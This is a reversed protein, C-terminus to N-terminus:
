GRSSLVVDVEFEENNRRYKVRVTQEADYQLLVEPLSQTTGVPQDEVSLIIDGARLGANWAPSGFRVAAIGFRSSGQLLVGHDFMSLDVGAADPLVFRVGLYPHSVKSDTVVDKFTSTFHHAPIVISQDVFKDNSSVIGVVVGRVDFVPAGILAAPLRRDLVIVRHYRDADYVGRAAPLSGFPLSVSTEFVGHTEGVVFLRDGADFRANDIVKPSSTDNKDIKFFAVNSAPDKVLSKRDLKFIEGDIRIGTARTIVDAETLMWGDSTYSVASGVVGARADVLSHTVRVMDLFPSESVDGAARRVQNSLPLTSILDTLIGPLFVRMAYTGGAVGGLISIVLVFVFLWRMRMAPYVDDPLHPANDPM